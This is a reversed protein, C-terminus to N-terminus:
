DTALKVIERVGFKGQLYYPSPLFFSFHTNPQHPCEQVPTTM